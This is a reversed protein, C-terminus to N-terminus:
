RKIVSLGFLGRGVPIAITDGLHTASYRARDLHIPKRWGGPLSVEMYYVKYPEGKVYRNRGVRKSRHHTETYLREVVARETHLSSKSVFCFNLAYFLAMAVGTALVVHCLPPLWGFRSGVVRRWLRAALPYSVVALALCALAPGWPNVLTITAFGLAAGYAMMTLMVIVVITVSHKRM